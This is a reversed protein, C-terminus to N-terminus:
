LKEACRLKASHSRPNIQLEEESPLIPKKNLLTIKPKNGCVCVPFDPPCTCGSSLSAFTQKVIRDELSHFTIVAARGGANLPAIASEISPAIADLEGNVEIRIAQFTRRAPHQAEKRRAAAPISQYIIEALETTTSIPKSERATCITHAIRPAFKEEGYDRLIRILESESYTNVVDAASMGGSQDMRMDLPAEATYSFGRSKEDLQYSSVGLDWMVGDIKEIGLMDLASDLASFNSKVLTVRDAYDALRKECAALAADDRDLCILRGDPPLRRAIELSHGGGGATCDVYIGGRAPNLAEMCEPALISIHQFEM